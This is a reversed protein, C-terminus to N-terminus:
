LLYHMTCMIDRCRVIVWVFLNTSSLPVMVRGRGRGGEREQDSIKQQTHATQGIQRQRIPPIKLSINTSRGYFRHMDGIYIRALKRLVLSYRDISRFFACVNGMPM